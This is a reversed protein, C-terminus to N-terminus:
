LVVAEVYEGPGTIPNVAELNAPMDALFDVVGQDVKQDARCFEPPVLAIGVTLGVETFNPVVPTYGGAGTGTSSSM